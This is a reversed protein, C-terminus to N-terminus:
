AGYIAGLLPETTFTLYRAFVDILISSLAMGALSGWFFKKGVYRYGAIFLPINIVVSILGVSLMPVFHHLVVALGSV